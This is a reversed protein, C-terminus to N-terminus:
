KQSDLNLLKFIDFNPFGLALLNNGKPTGKIPNLKTKFTGLPSESKVM